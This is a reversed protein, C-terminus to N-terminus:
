EFVAVFILGEDLEVGIGGVLFGVVVGGVGVGAFKLWLIIGDFFPM